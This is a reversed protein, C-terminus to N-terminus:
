TGRRWIRSVAWEALMAAAAAALLWYWLPTNQASTARRLYAGVASDHVIRGGAREALSRLAAHDAGLAHFERRATEPVAGRWVVRGTGDHVRIAATRGVPLDAEYRGPAVQLVSVSASRGEPTMVDATLALANMPASNDVAEITLRAGDGTDLVEGALRPDDGPPLAWQVAADLLQRLYASQRWAANLGADIPLSLTVSRGLAVQRWALLPDAEVRLSVRAGDAPAALLYADLPPADAAPPPGEGATVRFSGRRTADGRASRLFGAFVDALGRLGDRRVLPAGLLDALRQLPASATSPDAASQTVVVALSLGKDRFRQAVAAPDFRETLMDTVLLVLGTRPPTVDDAAALELAGGVRTPGGPRVGRMADRLAAYDIPAAASDYIRRPSDSFTVVSVADASTLHRRLSLVAQAAQDFKIGKRGGPGDAPEAMSGSADLVVVIKMPKRQYPNALLAAVRSLPDDRDDPTAHPAAGILVLGGGGRVFAALAQRQPRNLLTGTSDALIVTAYDVWGAADTPADGPAVATSAVRGSPLAIGGPTVVAVRRQRPLVLTEAADNEPFPDAESLSARYVAGSDPPPSDTLRITASDGATMSLERELLIRPAPRRRRVTLTRRQRANSAVTVRLHVQGDPRRRGSLEGVRADAPPSRMPVVLVDIGARGLADAADPWADQFRGDTRIVVGALADARATALRLAVAARTRAPGADQGAAAVNTAFVFADRPIEDPWDPLPPQDRVSGSVDQLVLYPKLADAGLQATPRALAAAALFVAVCQLAVCGASVHRGRRRAWTAVVIPVAVAAIAALAWPQDFQLRMTAAVMTM